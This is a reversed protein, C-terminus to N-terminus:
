KKPRSLNEVCICGHKEPDNVSQETLHSLRGQSAATPAVITIKRFDKLFDKSGLSPVAGNKPMLKPMSLKPPCILTPSLHKTMLFCSLNDNVIDCKIMNVKGTKKINASSRLSNVASNKPAKM